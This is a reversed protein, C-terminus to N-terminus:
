KKEKFYGESELTRTDICCLPIENLYFAGSRFHIVGFERSDARVDDYEYIKRGNKDELGTWQHKEYRPAKILGDDFYYDPNATANYNSYHDGDVPQVFDTIAGTFPCIQWNSMCHFSVSNEVFRKTQNDWLRFDRFSM